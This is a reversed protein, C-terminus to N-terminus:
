RGRVCKAYLDLLRGHPDYEKKLLQYQSGNYTRWFDDEDYYSSSYLSKRGGLDAVVEEIRRNHHGPRQGPIEEVSSWFGLNVYTTAPDLAYLDWTRDASRQRLPCLWVPSIGIEDHFFALFEDLRDVPVEVDQIVPERPAAGRRADLAQKWGHRREFGVVKWYVDSRLLRRPLLPRVLPHQVGLAASCWFWDTDWRWLYDRVTLYDSSRQQLSRYFVHRRTYDSLYPAEDVFRGVTIVIQDPAFVVGDLFDVERGEHQRSTSISEILHAADVASHRTFHHLEVFPRVPELEIRLRLAYGLTGYSNPFGSFLDAHPGDPTVTIVRGDGTLVDLDLVSEHPCGNRFTSSEIGLGTVAGGLTITKLQPVVLPMLGHRLTADVLEEYTTMGLVDATRAAADVELVGSFASVDLGPTASADRMRFLNSTRKALRVTADPGLARFDSTLQEVARAYAARAAV